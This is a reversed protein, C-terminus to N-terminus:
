YLESNTKSEDTDSDGSPLTCIMSQLRSSTRPPSSNRLGVFKSFFKSPIVFSSLSFFWRILSFFPLVSYLSPFLVTGPFTAVVHVSSPCLRFVLVLTLIYVLLVFFCVVVPSSVPPPFWNWKSSWPVPFLGLGEHVHHRHHHHHTNSHAWFNFIVRIGSAGMQVDPGGLARCSINKVELCKAEVNWRRTEVRLLKDIEELSIAPMINYGHKQCSM